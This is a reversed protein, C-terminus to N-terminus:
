AVLCERHWALADKDPAFREPLMMPLGEYGLFNAKWTKASFASRLHSSLVLRYDEDFTILFRDFAADHLANLCIGNSPDLRRAEHSSWPLIHSARLLDPVPLGTVACCDQYSHLVASRFFDQGRRAQITRRQTTPGLPLAATSSVEPEPGSPVRTASMIAELAHASEESSAAWDMQFEDWIRRDLKSAGALGKRGSAIIQPDLSAFNCLKMAVSSSTRGTLLAFEKIEPTRATLRGFPLQCYLQMVAMLEVRTWASNANM